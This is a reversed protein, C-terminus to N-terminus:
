VARRSAAQRESLLREYWRTTDTISQHPPEPIATAPQKELIATVPHPAESRLSPHHIHVSKTGKVNAHNRIVADFLDGASSSMGSQILVFHRGGEDIAKEIMADFRLPQDAIGAVAEIFAQRTRVVEGTCSLVPVV